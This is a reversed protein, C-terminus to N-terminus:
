QNNNTHQTAKFFNASFLNPPYDGIPSYSDLYWGDARRSLKEHLLHKSIHEPCSGPDQPPLHGPNLGHAKIRFDFLINLHM